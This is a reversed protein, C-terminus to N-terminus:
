NVPSYKTSSVVAFEIEINLSGENDLYKERVKDLSAFTPWGYGQNKNTNTRWFNCQGAQHISGFPDLVRLHVRTYIKEEANLTESESLYVYISLSNDRAKVGKPHVKLFWQRGGVLFKDSNYLEEKLEKFKKLSWSFKPDLIKQNFSVVEWKTLSPAVLVDVGFECQDGTRFANFRKLESDIVDHMFQRHTFFVLLSHISFPFCVLLLDIYIHFINSIYLGKITFYKDTKKNYVFFVLYAFVGTLPSSLLNTSDIEVYMSIFGSGEDKANGKPYIVLRWNYGGAAFLSSEYKGDDLEAINEFKISYSSPPHERLTSPNADLVTSGM